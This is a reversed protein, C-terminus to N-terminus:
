YYMLVYQLVEKSDRCVKWDCGIRPRLFLCEDGHRLSSSPDLGGFLSQNSQSIILGLPNRSGSGVPEPTLIVLRQLLLSAAAVRRALPVLKRRTSWVRPTQTPVRCLLRVILEFRTIINDGSIEKRTCYIAIDDTDGLTFIKPLWHTAVGFRWTLCVHLCECRWLHWWSCLQSQWILDIKEQVPYCKRIHSNGSDSWYFVAIELDIHDMLKIWFEAPRKKGSLTDLAVFAVHWGPTTDAISPDDETRKWVSSIKGCTVCGSLVPVNVGSNMNSKHFFELSYTEFHFSSIYSNIICSINSVAILVIVECVQWTRMRARSRQRRWRGEEEM